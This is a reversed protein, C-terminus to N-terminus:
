AQPIFRNIFAMSIFEQKRLYLELVERLFEPRFKENKSNALDRYGTGRQLYDSTGVRYWRQLDLPHGNIMIAKIKHIPKEKPNFHVKLNYSVQINGLLKGRFGEGTGDMLQYEKLLSKELTILLDAGKLDISTPNLPSPCIEHLLKKTVHGKELGKNLVGSNIIGIETKLIDRLSDALLNGIANEETLSHDLSTSISYLKRSLKENAQNSYYCIIDCIAPHPPINESPILRGKFDRISRTEIDYELILEGLYEGYKGAQCIITQNEVIPEKLTTHSHGGIIVDINPNKSAIEKDSELGLHSLLVVLDFEDKEYNSLVRTIEEQPDKVLMEFLEYWINYPATVGIILVKLGSVDIIVSDELYQLSNGNLDYMNCTVVPFNSSEAIIKGNIKGSFGENNGFVRAHFGIKNLIASSIRGNTGETELRMFDANDGSDLVITNKDRIKEIATAIKALEEFRSHLDSIHLIRLKM